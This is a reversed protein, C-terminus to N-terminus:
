YMFELFFYTSERDNAVDEIQKKKLIFIFPSYERM